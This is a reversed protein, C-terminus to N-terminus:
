LINVHADDQSAYDALSPNAGSCLLDLISRVSVVKSAWNSV